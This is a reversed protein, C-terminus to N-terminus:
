SCPTLRFHSLALETSTQVQSLLDKHAEKLFDQSTLSNTSSIVGTKNGAVDSIHKLGTAQSYYETSDVIKVANNM